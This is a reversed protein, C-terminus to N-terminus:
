SSVSRCDGLLPLRLQLIAEMLNAQPQTRHAERLQQNSYSLRGAAAASGKRLHYSFTLPAPLLPLGPLLLKQRWTGAQTETRVECLPASSTHVLYMM